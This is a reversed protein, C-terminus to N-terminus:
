SPSSSILSNCKASPLYTQFPFLMPSSPAHPPQSSLSSEPITFLPGLPFALPPALSRITLLSFLPPVHRLLSRRPHTWRPPPSYTHSRRPPPRRQIPVISTRHPFFLSTM